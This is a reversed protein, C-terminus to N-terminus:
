PAARRHPTMLGVQMPAVDGQTGPATDLGNGVHASEGGDHEVVPHGERWIRSPSGGPIGIFPATQGAPSVSIAGTQGASSVKTGQRPYRHDAASQGAPSVSETSDIWQAWANSAATTAGSAIKGDLDSIPQWSVAYLTPGMPKKGGQRTQEILGRKKLMGLAGFLQAKCVIGFPRATAFTLALDGNNNGRYQAAVALLVRVAYAPLTRCAVSTLVEVPIAAFFKGRM